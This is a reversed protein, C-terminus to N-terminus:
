EHQKNRDEHMNLKFNRVHQTFYYQGLIVMVLLKLVLLVTTVLFLSQLVYVTSYAYYMDLCANVVSLVTGGVKLAM